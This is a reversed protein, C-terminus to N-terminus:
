QNITTENNNLHEKLMKKLTEIQKTLRDIKTMLEAREEMLDRNKKIYELAKQQEDTLKGVLQSNQETLNRISELLPSIAANIIELDTKKRERRTTLLRTLYGVAVGVLPVIVYETWNM